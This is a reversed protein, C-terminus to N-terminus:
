EQTMEMIPEMAASQGSLWILMRSKIRLPIKVKIEKPDFNFSRPHIDAFVPKAGM